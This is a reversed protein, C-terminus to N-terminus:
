IKKRGEGSVVLMTMVAQRQEKYTKSTTGNTLARSSSSSPRGSEEIEREVRNTVASAGLETISSPVLTV